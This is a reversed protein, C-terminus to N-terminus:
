RLVRDLRQISMCRCRHACFGILMYINTLVSFTALFAEHLM